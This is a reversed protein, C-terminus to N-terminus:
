YYNIIPLPLYIAYFEVRLYNILQMKIIVYILCKFYGEKIITYALYM